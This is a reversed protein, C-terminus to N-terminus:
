MTGHARSVRHTPCVDSALSPKDQPTRNKVSHFKTSLLSLTRSAELGWTPEVSAPLFAEPLSPVQAGTIKWLEQQCSGPAKPLGPKIAGNLLDYPAATLRSPIEKEWRHGRCSKLRSSVRWLCFLKHGWHSM